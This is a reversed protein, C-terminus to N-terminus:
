TAVRSQSMTVRHKGDRKDVDSIIEYMSALVTGQKWAARCGTGGWKDLRTFDWHLGDGFDSVTVMFRPEGNPQQGVYLSVCNQEVERMTSVSTYIPEFGLAYLSELINPNIVSVM